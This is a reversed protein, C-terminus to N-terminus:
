QKTENFHIAITSNQFPIKPTIAQNHACVTLPANTNVNSTKTVALANPIPMEEDFIDKLLEKEEDEGLELLDRFSLNFNPQCNEKDVNSLVCVSETETCKNTQEQKAIEPKHWEADKWTM